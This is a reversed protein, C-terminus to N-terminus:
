TLLSTPSSAGVFSLSPPARPPPPGGLAAGREKGEQERLPSLPIQGQRDRRVRWVSQPFRDDWDLLIGRIAAVSSLEWHEYQNQMRAARRKALGSSRTREPLRISPGPIRSGSTVQWVAKKMDDMLPKKGDYGMDSGVQGDVWWSPELFSAPNEKRVAKRVSKKGRSNHVGTCIEALRGHSM